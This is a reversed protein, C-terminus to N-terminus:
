LTDSKMTADEIDPVAGDHVIIDGAVNGVNNSLNTSWQTDNATTVTITGYNAAEAVGCIMAGCVLALLSLATCRMRPLRCDRGDQWSGTMQHRFM